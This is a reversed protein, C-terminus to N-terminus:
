IPDLSQSATADPETQCSRPVELINDLNIVAGAGVICCHGLVQYM